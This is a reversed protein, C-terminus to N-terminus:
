VFVGRYTTIGLSYSVGTKEFHNIGTREKRTKTGTYYIIHRFIAQLKGDILKWVRLYYGFGRM